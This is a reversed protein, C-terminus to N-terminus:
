LFSNRIQSLLSLFSFFLFLAPFLFPFIIILFFHSSFFYFFLEINQFFDFGWVDLGAQSVPKKDEKEGEREGECEKGKKREKKGRREGKRRRRRRRREEEDREGNTIIHPAMEPPSYGSSYKHGAKEGFFTCSDFDILTYYDNSDDTVNKDSVSLSFCLLTLSFLFQSHRDSLPFPLFSPSFPPFSVFYYCFFSFFFFPFFGRVINRPKIDGHSIQHTHFYDLSQLIDSCM